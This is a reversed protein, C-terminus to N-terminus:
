NNKISPHTTTDPSLMPDSSLFQESSAAEEDLNTSTDPSDPLNDQTKRPQSM